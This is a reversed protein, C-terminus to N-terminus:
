AWKILVVGMKIAMSNVGIDVHGSVAGCDPSNNVFKMVAVVLRAAKHLDICRWPM